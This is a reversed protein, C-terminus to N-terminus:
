LYENMFVDLDYPTIGEDVDFILDADEKDVVRQGRASIHMDILDYLNPRSMNVVSYCSAALISLTNEVSMSYTSMNTSMDCWIFEREQCDFIVPICMTSKVGLDMKQTVTKPEFIEGSDLGEREMWGFTVNPLENFCQGNFSYLSYVIYRGGNKTVEEINIDLFESAGEGDLPGGNILDGSHCAKLRESRLNTWSIRERYEWNRSFVVASLDIDVVDERNNM